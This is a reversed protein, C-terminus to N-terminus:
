LHKKIKPWLYFAVVGVVLLLVFPNKVVNWVANGLQSNLGSLPAELPDTLLQDIFIGTTSESGRPTVEGSRALQRADTLVERLAVGNDDRRAAEAARDAVNRGFQNEIDAYLDGGHFYRPNSM